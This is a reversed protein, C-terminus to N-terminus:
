RRSPAASTPAGNTVMRRNSVGCSVAFVSEARDSVAPAASPATVTRPPRRRQARAAPTANPRAQTAYGM